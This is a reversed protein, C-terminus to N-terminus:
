FKYRATLRIDQGAEPLRDKLPSNHHRIEEDTLNRVAATLTLGDYASPQWTAAINVATHGDTPLEDAAIDDQDAANEIDMSLRLANFDMGLGLNIKDSPMAPLNGGDSLEGTMASYSLKVDLMRGGVSIDTLYEIEYGSLEADGKDYRYGPTVVDGDDDVEDLSTDRVQFIFDEFDNNFIAVRLQSNQWAKRVYLETSLSTEKGLEDDGQEIRQAAHHEGDAFLEVQSPARETSSVSGGILLNGDLKKALGVSVNTLTLSKAGEEHEDEGDDGDDDEEHEHEAELEVDDFRVALETLWGNRERETFAFLGIQSRETNPLYAGHGHDDGGEGESEDDHHEESETTLESNRYELGILTQWDSFQGTAEGRLHFGDQEFPTTEDGEFETQELTTFTADGRLANFPGVAVNHMLRAHITQQELDINTEGHDDHDDDGGDDDDEEEDHEAHGPVGYDMEHSVLMLSLNTEDDGFHGALTFGRNENQTNDAEQDGDELEHDDDDGGDEEHLEHYAETEAHTPITMNDADQAFGSLSFRGQRTFFATLTEDANDGFGFLVDTGEDTDANLHRNFSNVVGTAAFAGYRLAAPGKLVEVRETDYLSLANAHDGGTAAIDGITMGNMMTDVRYGGLGRIVPQGVAPGFGASDVGPLDSLVEGIPQGLAPQLTDAVVVETTSIVETAPKKFPSSLVIIEDTEQAWVSTSLMTAGLLAAVQMKRNM